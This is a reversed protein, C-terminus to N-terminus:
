PECHWWLVASIVSHTTVGNQHSCIPSFVPCSVIATVKNTVKGCLYLLTCSSLADKLYLLEKEKCSIEQWDLPTYM